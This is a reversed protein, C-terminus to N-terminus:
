AALMGLNNTGFKVVIFVRLCLLVYSCLSVRTLNYFDFQLWLTFLYILLHQLRPSHSGLSLPAQRFRM